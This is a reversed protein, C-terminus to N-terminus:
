LAVKFWKPKARGREWAMKFRSQKTQYFLRYSKVPDEPFMCEPNAKMALPFTTLGWKTINKPPIALIDKLKTETLHIKGFRFTFENCLSVFHRYHWNYNGLTQRTWVTCPHNFHVAKYLVDEREDDLKYYKVMMKGSKSPRKEMTGDLMRHTTSLMQASEVLMKPVHKDCQGKAACEPCNDIVFVNM